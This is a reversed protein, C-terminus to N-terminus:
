TVRVRNIIMFILFYTISVLTKEPGCFPLVIKMRLILKYESSSSYDYKNLLLYYGILNFIKTVRFLDLPCVILFHPTNTSM